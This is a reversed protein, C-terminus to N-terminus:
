VAGFGVTRLTTGAVPGVEPPVLTTIVPVPKREVDATANPLRVAADTVISEGVCIVATAGAVVVSLVTATRTVM